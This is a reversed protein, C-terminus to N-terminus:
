RRYPSVVEDEFPYSISQQRQGEMHTANSSDTYTCIRCPRKWDALRSFRPKQSLLTPTNTIDRLSRTVPLLSNPFDKDIYIYIHHSIFM